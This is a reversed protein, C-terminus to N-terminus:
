LGMRIFSDLLTQRSKKEDKFVQNETIRAVKGNHIVYCEKIIRDEFDEWRGQLKNALRELNLPNSKTKEDFDFDIVVVSSGQKIAKNFGAAIGNESTIGKRDALVGNIRYEPNKLDKKIINPRIHIEAKPFANLIDKAARTNAALENKDCESNIFLRDNEKSATYTGVNKEERTVWEQMKSNKDSIDKRGICRKRSKECDAVYKQGQAVGNLCAECQPNGKIYLKLNSPNCGKCQGM